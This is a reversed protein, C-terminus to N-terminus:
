KIIYLLFRFFSSSSIISTSTLGLSQPWSAIDQVVMSITVSEKPALWITVITEIYQTSM